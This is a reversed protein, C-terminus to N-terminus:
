EDEKKAAWTNGVKIDIPFDIDGFLEKATIDASQTLLEKYVSVQETPVDLVLEDYISMTVPYELSETNCLTWFKNMWMKIFDAASSQIPSNAANNDAQFSYPNVWVRRGTVSEVYEQRRAIDRQRDIFMRVGFFKDFYNKLFQEAELETIRLREALGKATMGYSTALNIVKGIDRRPDNKTISDDQFVARAVALHIDQKDEFVKRLVKDGSLYALCRPEQAQV